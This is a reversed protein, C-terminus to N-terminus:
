LKIKQERWPGHNKSGPLVKLRAEKAFTEFRPKLAVAELGDSLLSVRSDV